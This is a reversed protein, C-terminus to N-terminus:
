CGGLLLFWDAIEVRDTGSLSLTRFHQRNHTIAALGGTSGPDGGIYWQTAHKM